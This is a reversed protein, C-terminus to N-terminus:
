INALKFQQPFCAAIITESTLPRLNNKPMLWLLFSSLCCTRAQQLYSSCCMMACVPLCSMFMTVFTCYRSVCCVCERFQTSAAVGAVIYGALDAQLENHDHMICSGGGGGGGGWGLRGYPVVSLSCCGRAARHPLLGVAHSCSQLCLVDLGVCHAFNRVYLLHPYFLLFCILHFM